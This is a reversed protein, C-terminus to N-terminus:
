IFTFSKIIDSFRDLIGTIFESFIGVSYLSYRMTPANKTIFRNLSYKNKNVRPPHM